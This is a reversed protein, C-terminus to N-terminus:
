NRSGPPVYLSVVHEPGFTIRDGPGLVDSIVPQSALRGVYRDGEMGDVQVWMRECQISRETGDNELFLFLLKVTDGLKLSRRVAASPIEFTAPSQRHREEGSDLAWGDRELQPERIAM